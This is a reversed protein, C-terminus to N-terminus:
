YFFDIDLLLKDCLAFSDDYSTTLSNYIEVLQNIKQNLLKYDLVKYTDFAESIKDLAAMIEINLRIIPSTLNDRYISATKDFNNYFILDGINVNDELFKATLNHGSLYVM